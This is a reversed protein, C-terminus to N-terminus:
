KKDDAAVLVPPAADEAAEAAKSAAKKKKKKAAKKSTSAQLIAKLEKDQVSYESKFMNPDFPGQTIRTPGNPMLLVTYKFQAVFEGEKDYLVPYPEVLGHKVCEVVGMKTKTEDEFSRITFPMIPYSELVKTYFVRSHKIKLNYNLDTKKYVSTRADMERAKGEGTSILVDVAYVEHVDFDCRKHDKRQEETPNQIISKEGNILNRKLQHSLMGVVPKSKYDEAIKQFADTVDYNQAGPKVLRLAAEACDNAALVADAKKGTVPNEVSAGIVFTHALVAIYGDVHAGIDVKVLDGDKLEVEKESRLPSFHCVCNNVSICTPFAIGKKIEKDKKYVKATKEVLLNDGFECLELVKTGPVSKKIIEKLVNNVIDGVMKYKTVVIDQAITTAEDESSSDAM